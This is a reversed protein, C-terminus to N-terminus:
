DAKVIVYCGCGVQKVTLESSKTQKKRTTHKLDICTRKNSFENTARSAADSAEKAIKKQATEATKSADDYPLVNDRIQPQRAVVGRSTCSPWDMTSEIM